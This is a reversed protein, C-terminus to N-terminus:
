STLKGIIRIVLLERNLALRQRIVFITGASLVATVEAPDKNRTQKIQDQKMTTKKNIQKLDHQQTQHVQYKKTRVRKAVIYQYLLLLQTKEESGSCLKCTAGNFYQTYLINFDSVFKM